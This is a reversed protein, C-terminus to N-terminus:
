IYFGEMEEPTTEVLKDKTPAATDVSAAAVDEKVAKQEQELASKLRDSVMESLMHQISRRLLDTSQFVVKETVAGNYVQKAFLRVFPESPSKFETALLGRLAATYKLGSANSLIAAVDFYSKHFRKLEEAQADSIATID